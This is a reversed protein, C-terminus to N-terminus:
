EEKDGHIRTKHGRVDGVEESVARKTIHWRMSFQERNLRANLSLYRNFAKSVSASAVKSAHM